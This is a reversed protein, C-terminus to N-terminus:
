TITWGGDVVLNHGTVGAARASLLFTIADAVEVPKLMRGMPARSGYAAAFRDSAAGGVGGAAISNVRVRPALSVALQRALHLQAAKAVNYHPPSPTGGGEEYLSPAPAVMGYQSSVLVAAAFREYRQALATVLEYNSVVALLYERLWADRDPHGAPDVGLNERDRANCVLHTPELGQEDLSQVTRGAAQPDCLDVRLLALREPSGCDESLEELRESSRGTAVVQWGQGLLVRCLETGILGTAGTVVVTGPNM